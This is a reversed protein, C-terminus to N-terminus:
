SGSGTLSQRRRDEILKQLHWVAWKYGCNLGCFLNDAYNGYGQFERATPDMSLVAGLGLKPPYVAKFKPRLMKHCYMCKPRPRQPPEPVTIPPLRKSM